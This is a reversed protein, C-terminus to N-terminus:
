VFNPINGFTAVAQSIYFVEFLSDGITYKGSLSPNQNLMAIKPEDREDRVAVGQVRLWEGNQNAASIEINPNKIMQRFVSKTNNTCIYLKGEFEAIAGFPRVRPQDEEETALYFTPNERLFALVRKM